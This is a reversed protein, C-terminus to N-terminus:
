ERDFFLESVVVAATGVLVTIRAAISATVTAGFGTAGILVAQTGMVFWFSTALSRARNARYREDIIADKLDPNRRVKRILNMRYAFFGFWVAWGVLSVLVLPRHVAPLTTAAIDFVQWWLFGALFGIFSIRLGRQAREELSQESAM